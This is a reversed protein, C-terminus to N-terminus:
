FFSFVLFFIRKPYKQTASVKVTTYNMCSQWPTRWQNDDCFQGFRTTVNSFSLPFDHIIMKSRLFEMRSDLMTCVIPDAPSDRAAPAINVMGTSNKPPLDSM